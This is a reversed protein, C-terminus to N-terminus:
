RSPTMQYRSKGRIQSEEWSNWSKKSKLPGLIVEVIGFWASYVMTIMDICTDWLQIWLKSWKPYMFMKQSKTKEWFETGIRCGFPSIQERPRLKMSVSWSFMFISIDFKRAWTYPWKFFTHDNPTCTPCVTKKQVTDGGYCLGLDLNWIFTNEIMKHMYMNCICQLKIILHKYWM